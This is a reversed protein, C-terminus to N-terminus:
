FYLLSEKFIPCNHISTITTMLMATTTTTTAETTTTILSSAKQSNITSLQWGGVSKASETRRASDYIVTKKDFIKYHIPNQNNNSLDLYKGEKSDYQALKVNDFWRVLKNNQFYIWNCDPLKKFNDKGDQSKWFEDLIRLFNYLRM